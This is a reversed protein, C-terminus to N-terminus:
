AGRWCGRRRAPVSPRMPALPHVLGAAPGCRLSRCRSAQSRSIRVWFTPGAEKRSRILRKPEASAASSISGSSVSEPPMLRITRMGESASASARSPLGGFLEARPEDGDALGVVRRQQFDHVCGGGRSATLPSPATNRSGVTAMTPARLAESAPMLIARMAPRRDQGRRSRCRRRAPARCRCPPGGPCGRSRCSRRTRPRDRCARDAQFYRGTHHFRRAAAAGDNGFHREAPLRAGLIKRAAVAQDGARGQSQDHDLRGLAGARQDAGPKGALHAPQHKGHGSRREVRAGGAGVAQELVAGGQDGVRGINGAAIAGSVPAARRRGATSSSGGSKRAVGGGPSFSRSRTTSASPGVGTATSSMMRWVPRCGAWTKM